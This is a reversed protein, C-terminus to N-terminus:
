EYRLAQIPDLAAAKRAPYLGFCIGVAVAFGVAVLVTYPSSGTNWGTFHGLALAGVYGLVVGIIGGLVSIVVSEILFQTLVDASRAGVAMRIGIERTRETVSVLMINMIGIGGVLLSISAIAALLMSMVKTTGTAASALEDQNRVSFDDEGDGLRHAERMISRIEDQAAGIDEATTSSAVIQAIFAWGSLRAQATTYPVIVVDDQDNGGPSQGKPALVAVITFPVNRLQITQGIADGNPYLNAAVTNGLVAVRRKDREDTASFFDGTAIPWARIIPYDVAVGNLRTRWNGQGGIAQIGAFIVPSINKILTAERKIKDYDDLTLRNFSQAGQSVGGQRTAGATVAILNSGLGRVQAEISSQAGQGVAVMIMVAAVGIVVGLVTLIARMKHRWISQVAVKVLISKKM